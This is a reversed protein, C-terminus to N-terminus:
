ERLMKKVKRECKNRNNIKKMCREMLIYSSGADGLYEGGEESLDELEELGEKGYYELEEVADYADVGADVGGSCALQITFLFLLCLLILYINKSKMHKM